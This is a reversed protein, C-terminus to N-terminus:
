PGAVNCLTLQSSNTGALAAHGVAAVADVVDDDGGCLAALAGRHDVRIAIWTEASQCELSIFYANPAESM